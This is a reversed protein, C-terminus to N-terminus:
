IFKTRGIISKLIRDLANEDEDTYMVHACPIDTVPISVRTVETREIIVREVGNEDITTM